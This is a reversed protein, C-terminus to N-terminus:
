QFLSTGDGKNGTVAFLAGPPKVLHLYSGDAVLQFFELFYRLALLSDRFGDTFQSFHRGFQLLTNVTTPISRFQFVEIQGIPRLPAGTCLHRAFMPQLRQCVNQQQLTLAVGLTCGLRKYSSFVRRKSRGAVSQFPSLIDYGLLYALVLPRALLHTAGKTTSGDNGRFDDLGLSLGILSLFIAVIKVPLLRQLTARGM